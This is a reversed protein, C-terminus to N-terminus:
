CIVFRPVLLVNSCSLNNSKQCCSVKWIKLWCRELFNSSPGRSGERKKHLRTCERADDMIYYASKVLFVGKPDFHWAIVDEHGPRLLIELINIAHEEWFIDRILQDDVLLLCDADLHILCQLLLSSSLNGFPM